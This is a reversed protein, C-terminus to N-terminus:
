GPKRLVSFWDPVRPDSGILVKTPLVVQAQAWLAGLGDIVLSRTIVCIFCKSLSWFVWTRSEHISVEHELLGATAPNPKYLCIKNVNEM